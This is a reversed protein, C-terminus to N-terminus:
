RFVDEILGGWEASRKNQDLRRLEGRGERQKMKDLQEEDEGGDGKDEKGKMLAM